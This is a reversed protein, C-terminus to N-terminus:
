SSVGRRKGKLRLRRPEREVRRALRSPPLPLGAPVRGVHIGVGIVEGDRVPVAYLDVAGELVLWILDPRDLLFPNHYGVQRRVGDIRALLEAKAEVLEPDIAPLGASESSAATM